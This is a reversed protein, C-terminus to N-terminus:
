DTGAAARAGGGDEGGPRAAAGRGGLLVGPRRRREERVHYGQVPVGPAAAAGRGRQAQRGAQGPDAGSEPLEAGKRLAEVALLSPLFFNLTNGSPNPTFFVRCLYTM